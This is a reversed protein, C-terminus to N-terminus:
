LKTWRPLRKTLEISHREATAPFGVYIDCPLRPFLHMHLHPVTNGHNEYNM